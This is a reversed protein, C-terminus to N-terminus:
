SRFIKRYIKYLKPYKLIIKKKKLVTQFQKKNEEIVLHYKENTDKDLNEYLEIMKETNKLSQVMSNREKESWSGPVGQRYASMIDPIYHVKGCLSLYITLPYDGIHANLYFSPFTKTFETKFIMSNTAFLAGGGNIIEETSVDCEQEFAKNIGIDEKNVTVNKSAHVILSCNPNNELYDVQKQLKSSDLWFDDGECMAIYKGRARPYQITASIKVGKSHQNEKQYIPRIIDPYKKEYEKIIKVTNDTSADDHILVEYRFDTKQNLFSELADRIYKEHNYALCCISVMIKDNM